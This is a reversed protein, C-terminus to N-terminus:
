HMKLSQRQIMKTIMCIITTLSLHYLSRPFRTGASTWRPQGRRGLKTWSYQSWSDETQFLLAKYQGTTSGNGWDATSKVWVVYVNQNTGSPHLNRHSTPWKPLLLGDQTVFWQTNEWRQLGGAAWQLTQHPLCGCTAGPNKSYFIWVQKKLLFFNKNKACNLPTDKASVM